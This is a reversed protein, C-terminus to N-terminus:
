MFKHKICVFMSFKGINEKVIIFGNDTLLSRLKSAATEPKINYGDMESWRKTPEMIYLTGNTELIRFAETIYSHCNSGWMALSLIVIEVSDDEEPTKSIDCATVISEDFAIHDYNTFLFRSDDKFHQSIQAKGCGMDVINKTRKTQIKKLETIIRNRPIEEEPFSTENQESIEHYKHWLEPNTNFKDRLNDSRLTKYHQHLISIESKVRIQRENSTEPKQNQLPTALKMNKKKPEKKYELFTNYKAIFNTWQKHITPTKMGEKSKCILPSYNKKQHSVWIGVRKITPDKDKGSPLKDNSDIYEDVKVLMDLWQAESDKFADKYKAIFDTWQKHITPTKMIQKSESILPSYNEKQHSVWSGIRKIIPDKDKQIPLKNNSVIYEDVKALIHLWRAEYDMFADKYKAIFVTWQNHITPTKMSKKSESILPYYNQKQNSVWSGQCKITPDKDRACPLKNNSAIYEDVKMLLDLWQAETDMFADKYKAIFNTWQKHIKPTNMIYKSESILPYYNQKQNSVWSGLCKISPDKDKQIPLKNNSVIYEDVEALIHLWQAEFDMFADKYKAIFDTWQKHITPTKMIQKSESILPFYNKKQTSVWSGLRKITSDKDNTSPLKDNSAIYEDVKTLTHLWQAQSDMFADKYKAILDTWQNHITPSKMGYKSESILPYYNQKQNSVWSGLCKITPDKDKQSPIKDNSAIYEYVKALMHLWQAESDNFAHKYKAIFDTWQKHITPTKMIYKSESIIPSYNKKQTSVWSGIRKITPDKDKASPLKDNSAIYEDVKILNLKWLEGNDIREVHCEIIRSCMNDGIECDGQISWLMKIEDNCHFDLRSRQRKDPSKLGGGINKGSKSIIPYYVVDIESDDNEEETQFLHTIIDDINEVNHRIIPEDINSTHIEIPKGEEIMEEVEYEQKMNDEDICCNQSKIANEREVPTFNSPYRVMIDYLEPDEEKLAACVNAIGGYNGNMLEERIVSDRKEKDDGCDAYKNVDIYVPILVTATQSVGNMRVIRGINQIITTYSTKPDVFVCMNANKTDVGEGITACSALIFIEDDKTNEFRTLIKHKDKDMGTLGRFTIKKYKGKKDPFENKIIKELAAHFLNNDVFRKVSTDSKSDESVDAHFTLVMNNGTVLIARVITEYISSTANETYMDIRVDFSKLISDNVGQLYTYEYALEGCDGYIGEANCERDFMTINNKNVPTATFFVQKNYISKYPEDYILKKYESSTTRHAEDFQCIGIKTDGINDLLTELSQYTVCIIKKTPLNIFQLIKDPETTSVVNSIIESSVNLLIHNILENPCVEKSLYGKCFQSILALSPFVVVSLEQNQSIIIEAIIRSKGSGCFMKVLCKSNKSLINEISNHAEQQCPRSLRSNSM